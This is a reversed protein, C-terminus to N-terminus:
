PYHRFPPQRMEGVHGGNRFRSQRAEEEIGPERDERGGARWLLDNAPQVGLNQFRKAVGFNAVLQLLQAKRHTATRRFLKTDHCAILEGFIRAHDLFHSDSALLKGAARDRCGAIGFQETAISADAAAAASISSRARPGRVPASSTLTACSGGFAMMRHIAPRFGKDAFPQKLAQETM